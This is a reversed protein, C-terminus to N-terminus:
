NDIISRDTKRTTPAVRRHYHAHARADEQARPGVVLQAVQLRARARRGVGDDPGGDLHQAARQQAGREAEAAHEGRAGDALREGVAEDARQQAFVLVLEEVRLVAEVVFVLDDDLEAVLVEGASHYPEVSRVHERVNEFQQLDVPGSVVGLNLSTM